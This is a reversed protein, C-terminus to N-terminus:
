SVNLILNRIKAIKKIKNKELIHLEMITDCTEFQPNLYSELSM